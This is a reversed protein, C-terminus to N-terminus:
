QAEDHSRAVYGKFTPKREVGEAVRGSSESRPKMSTIHTSGSAGHPCPQVRAKSVKSIQAVVVTQWTILVYYM